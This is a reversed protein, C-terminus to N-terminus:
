LNKQIHNSMDEMDKQMKELHSTNDRIDVLVELSDEAISLQDMMTHDMSSLHERQASFQGVLLSGTEETISRAIGKLGQQTDDTNNTYGELIPSAIEWQKQGWEIGGTLIKQLDSREEESIVNDSMATEFESMFEYLYKDNLGSIISKTIASKMLDGFIGSFDGLGNESLRLGDAIGGAISAAVNDSTFGLLKNYGENLLQLKGQQAAVLDNLLQLEDEGLNILGDSYANIFQDANWNRSEGEKNEIFTSWKMNGYMGPFEERLLKYRDQQMKYEERTLIKRKQLSETNKIVAQDYDRLQKEQLAFWNSDESNALISSQIELKRNIEELGKSVGDTDENKFLGIINGLMGIGSSIAGIPDGVSVSAFLNAGNMAIDAMRGVVNGLEGDLEGAAFSLAGLIQSADNLGDSIDEYLGQQLHLNDLQKAQIKLRKLEEATLQKMPKLQGEIQKAIQPKNPNVKAKANKGDADTFSRGWAEGLAETFRERVQKAAEDLFEQEDAIKLYLQVDQEITGLGLKDSLEEIKAIADAVTKIKKEAEGGGGGGEPKGDSNLVKNYVKALGDQVRKNIEIDERVLELEIHNHYGTTFTKSKLGVAMYASEGLKQLSGPQKKELGSEQVGLEKSKNKLEILRNTVAALKEEKTGLKDLEANFNSLEKTVGPKIIDAETDTMWENLKDALGVSGSTIADGLGKLERQWKNHVVSWKNDAELMMADYASTMAGAATTMADLDSAAEKAKDGTLALVANMGEVRGMMEKLKTDSGGAMDRVKKLGEQFTMANTWGDGLIENMSIIAQRVQTVAVSTSNGQKTLSAIAASVEEFSIGMASAMPAVTAINTALEPFTTKGKEVTKFMVDAVQTAETADKGWANLVTTLGDAATKTDTIGATAAKSSVDLLELGAAGDHGASVIQYYAKALQIADDPGNAALDIIADGIGEFDQQVASSITQVERMSMSFENSFEHADASLKAFILGAAAIPAFPALKSIDQGMGAIIGRAKVRGAQLGTNSMTNVFHLGQIGGTVSM